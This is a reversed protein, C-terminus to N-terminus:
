VGAQSTCGREDFVVNSYMLNNNMADLKYVQDVSNTLEYVHQCKSNIKKSLVDDSKYFVKQNVLENSNCVNFNM